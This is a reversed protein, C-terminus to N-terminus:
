PAVGKADGLQARLGHVPVMQHEALTMQQPAPLRVHGNLNQGRIVTMGSPVFNDTKINSGFPSMAISRPSPASVEEIARIKWEGGM